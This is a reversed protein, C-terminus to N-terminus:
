QLFSQETMRKLSLVFWQKLKFLDMTLLQDQSAQMLKESEMSRSEKRVRIDRTSLHRYLKCVDRQYMADDPKRNANYKRLGFQEHFNTLILELRNQSKSLLDLVSQSPNSACLKFSDKFFRNSHELELDMPKNGQKHGITNVFAEQVVLERMRDSLFLQVQAVHEFCALAYNKYGLHHYQPMMRKMIISLLSGNGDKIAIDM